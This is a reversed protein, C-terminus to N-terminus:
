YGSCYSSCVLVLTADSNICSEREIGMEHHFTPYGSKLSLGFWEKRCQEGSEWTKGSHFLHPCHSMM